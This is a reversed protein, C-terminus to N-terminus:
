GGVKGLGCQKAVVLALVRRKEETSFKSRIGVRIAQNVETTQSDFWTDLDDVLQRFELKSATSDVGLALFDRMNRMVHAWVSYREDEPLVAM